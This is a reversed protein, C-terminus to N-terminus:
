AEATLDAAAQYDLKLVQYIKSFVAIPCDSFAPTQTRASSPLTALAAATLGAKGLFDRRSIPLASM